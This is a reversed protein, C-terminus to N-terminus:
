YCAGYGPLDTWGCILGPSCHPEGGAQDCLQHCQNGAGTVFCAFGPGCDLPSLCHDGHRGPGAAACFTAFVEDGCHGEPYVVTPYCAFGPECDGPSYPDCERLYADADPPVAADTACGPDIYADYRPPGADMPPRGRRDERGGDDMPGADMAIDRTRSSPCGPLACLLGVAALFPLLPSRRM